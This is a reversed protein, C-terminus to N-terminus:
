IKKRTELISIQHQSCYELFKNYKESKGKSKEVIKIGRKMIKLIIKQNLITELDIDM